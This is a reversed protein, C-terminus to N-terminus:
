VSCITPLTLHTYSVPPACRWRHCGGRSRSPPRRLPRRSLGGRDIRAVGRPGAVALGAAPHQTSEGRAASVPTTIRRTASPAQTTPHASSSNVISMRGISNSGGVASISDELFRSGPRAHITSRTQM